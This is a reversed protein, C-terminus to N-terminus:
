CHHHKREAFFDRQVRNCGTWPVGLLKQILAPTIVDKVVLKLSQKEGDFLLVAGSKMKKQLFLKRGKRRGSKFFMTLSISVGRGIVRSSASVASRRGYLKKVLFPEEEEKRYVEYGAACRQWSTTSRREQATGM